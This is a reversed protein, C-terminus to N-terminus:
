KAKRIYLDLLLGFSFSLVLSAVIYELSARVFFIEKLQLSNKAVLMFCYLMLSSGALTVAALCSSTFKIAIDNVTNLNKILNKM